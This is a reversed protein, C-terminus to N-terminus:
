RGRRTREDIKEQMHRIMVVWDGAFNFYHDILALAVMRGIKNDADPNEGTPRGISQCLASRFDTAHSRWASRMVRQFEKPNSVALSQLERAAKMAMQLVHVTGFTVITEQDIPEAAAQNTM